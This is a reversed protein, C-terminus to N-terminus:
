NCQLQMATALNFNAYSVPKRLKIVSKEKNLKGGSIRM